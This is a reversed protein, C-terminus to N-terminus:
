LEIHASVSDVVHEDPADLSRCTIMRIDIRAPTAGTRAKFDGVAQSAAVWIAHEMEERADRISDAATM